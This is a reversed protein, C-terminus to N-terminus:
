TSIETATWTGSSPTNQLDDRMTVSQILLDKGNVVRYVKTSCYRSRLAGGLVVDVDGDNDLDGPVIANGGTQVRSTPGSFGNWADDTSGENLLVFTKRTWPNTVPLDLDGDADFDALAGILSTRTIRGQRAFTGDGNGLLVSVPGNRIRVLLDLIGDSDVDGAIVDTAQAGAAYTVPEAFTIHAALLTRTELNELSLSRHRLRDFM